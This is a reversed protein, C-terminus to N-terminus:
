LVYLIQLILDNGKEPLVSCVTYQVSCVAGAGAGSGAGVGEYKVNLVECQVCDFTPQIPHCSPPPLILMSLQIKKEM